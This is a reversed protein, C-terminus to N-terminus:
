LSGSSNGFSLHWQISHPTKCTPIMESGLLRLHAAVIVLVPLLM